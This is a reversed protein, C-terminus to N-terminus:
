STGTTSVIFGTGKQDILRPSERHPNPAGARGGSGPLPRGLFRRCQGGSKKIKAVCHALVSLLQGTQDHNFQFLQGQTFATMAKARRFQAILSSNIPMAVRVLKDGIPVGHVNFPRQGDFTLTLPFAQGDQAEM